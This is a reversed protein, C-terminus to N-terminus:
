HRAGETLARVPLRMLQRLQDIGPRIDEPSTASWERVASTYVAFLTAAAEGVDIDAAIRGEAHLGALWAEVERRAQQRRALILDMHPNVVYFEMQQLVHRSLMPIKSWFTYLQSLGAILEDLVSRDGAMQFLPPLAKLEDVYVMALLGAKDSAYASVTGFGVDAREAVERLTTREYGKEFFLSRAAERILREKKQKNRERLGPAIAGPPAAPDAKPTSTASM